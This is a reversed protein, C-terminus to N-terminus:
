FTWSGGLDIGLDRTRYGGMNAADYDFQIFLGKFEIGAAAGVYFGETTGSVSNGSVSNASLIGLRYGAGGELFPRVEGDTLYGRLVGGASATSSELSIGGVSLDWRDVQVRLGATARDGSDKSIEARIRAAAVTGSNGNM